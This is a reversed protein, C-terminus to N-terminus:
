RSLRKVISDYTKMDEGSKVLGIEESETYVVEYHQTILDCVEVTTMLAVEEPKALKEEIVLVRACKEMGVYELKEDLERGTM